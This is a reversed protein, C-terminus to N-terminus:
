KSLARIYAVIGEIQEAKVKDKYSDMEKKVGDRTENVGEAIAKRIVDDTAKKQWAATSMDPLKM